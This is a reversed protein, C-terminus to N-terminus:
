SKPKKNSNINTRSNILKVLYIFFVICYRHEVYSPTERVRKREKNISVIAMFNIVQKYM